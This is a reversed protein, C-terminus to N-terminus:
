QIRLYKNNLFVNKHEKHTIKEVVNRNMGKAKEDESNDYLLFEHMKSKLEVFKEIAVSGTKDKMKGIVLKNSYDYYKSKTSYDSFDYM